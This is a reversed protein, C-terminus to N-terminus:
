RRGFEEFRAPEHGYWRRLEGSPALERAWADIAARERSLGRPWLGDILVRFGDDPSPPEYVRKQRITM